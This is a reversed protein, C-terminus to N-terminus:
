TIHDNPSGFPLKNEGQNPTQKISRLLMQTELSVPTGRTGIQPMNSDIQPINSTLPPPLDIKNEEINPEPPAPDTNMNIIDENKTNKINDINETISIATYLRPPLSDSEKYERRLIIPQGEQLMEGEYVIKLIDASTKLIRLSDAREQDTEPELGM